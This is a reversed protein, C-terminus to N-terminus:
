LLAARRAHHNPLNRQMHCHHRTYGVPFAIPRSVTNRDPVPSIHCSANPPATVASDELANLLGDTPLGLQRTKRCEHLKRPHM